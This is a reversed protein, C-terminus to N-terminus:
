QADRHHRACGRDGEDRDGDEEDIEAAGEAVVRSVHSVRPKLIAAINIVREGAILRSIDGGLDVVRKASDVVISDSSAILHSDSLGLIFSDAKDCTLATGRLSYATIFSRALAALNGSMSVQRDFALLLEGPGVRALYELLLFLSTVLTPTVKVKRFTASLDRVLGDTSRVLTDGLLAAQITSLVNFGDVAVKAGSELRCLKESRRRSVSSSFVCRYLLMRGLADIRWRGTVMDLARSRDYGRELLYYYDAAAELLSETLTVVIRMGL